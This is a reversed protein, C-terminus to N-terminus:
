SRHEAIRLGINNGTAYGGNKNNLVLLIELAAYDIEKKYNINGELGEIELIAKSIKLGAFWQKLLVIEKPNSKNDIIIIQNSLSQERLNETCNVTDKFSNYNLIVSATKRKVLMKRM